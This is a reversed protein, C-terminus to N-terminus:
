KPEYLNCTIDIQDRMKKYIWSSIQHWMSREPILTIDYIDKLSKVPTLLIKDVLDIDSYRESILNVDFFKESSFQYWTYIQPVM